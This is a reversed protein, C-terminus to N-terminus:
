FHDIMGPVSYVPMPRTARNKILIDAIIQPAVSSSVALTRDLNTKTNDEIFTGSLSPVASYMDAYNWSALTGTVNPRMLGSVRNPKYRYEAWAEQYGFVENSIQNSLSSYIEKTYVPQESIHALAPYYFDFRDRKYWMREIGQSYTKKNRVTLVGIVYGHETFSQHVGRNVGTTLSFAATNGQPSTNDTSSTQNVQQCGITEKFGGLYEPRQLRSDPSIVGFHSRIIETYRTGGRADREFLRQLQFAQRLQAVTAATASSLDAWLNAPHMFGSTTEIGSNLSGTAYTFSVDEFDSFENNYMLLGKSNAAGRWAMPVSSGVTNNVRTLVPAYGGLPLYVSTNKQPAPLCSTFYDHKKCVTLPVNQPHYKYGTSDYSSTSISIPAQLNQDRFWENWILGYARFPLVNIGITASTTVSSTFASQGAPLGFYDGITHSALTQSSFNVYPVKAPPSSPIWASTKNEGHLEQWGNWVLRNPVFFYFFEIELDDMVPFIPTTTRAVFATDIDFTDGPLVEDVYFPILQGANFTTKHTHDRQFVSRQIDASPVGAFHDQNSTLNKM